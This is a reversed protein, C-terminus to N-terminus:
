YLESLPNSVTFISKFGSRFTLPASMEMGAEDTYRIRPEAQNLIIDRVYSVASWEKAGWNNSEDLLQEYARLSFKHYNKILLPAYLLFDADIQERVQQKQSIYGTLWQGVGLTTIYMNIERGSKFKLKFCKENADYLKMLEDPINIFDINDKYIPIQKTETVNFMLENSGNPFTFDRIAFLIYLRDIDALDKWSGGNYNPDPISIKCCREIVYNIHENVDDLKEVNMTSWHKIEGATAARVFIKTGDPYFMGRSPLSPIDLSQWGLVNSKNSENKSINKPKPSKNSIVDTGNDNFNEVSESYEKLIDEDHKNM